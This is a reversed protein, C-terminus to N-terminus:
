FQKEDSFWCWFSMWFAVWFCVSKRNAENCGEEGGGAQTARPPFGYQLVGSDICMTMAVMLFSFASSKIKLDQLHRVEPELGEWNMNSKHLRTYKVQQQTLQLQQLLATAHTDTLSGAATPIMHGTVGVLWVHVHTPTFAFSLTGTGGVIHNASPWWLKSTSQSAQKVSYFRRCEFYSIKTEMRPEPCIYLFGPRVQNLVATSSIAKIWKSGFIVVVHLRQPKIIKKLINNVFKWSNYMKFAM